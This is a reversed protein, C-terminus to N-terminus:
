DGLLSQVCKGDGPVVQYIGRRARWDVFKRVVPRSTGVLEWPAHLAGSTAFRRCNIPHLSFSFGAHTWTLLRSEPLKRPNHTRTM